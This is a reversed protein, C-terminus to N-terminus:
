WLKRAFFLAAMLSPRRRVDSLLLSPRPSNELWAPLIQVASLASCFAVNASYYGNVM